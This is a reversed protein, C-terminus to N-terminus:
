LRSVIQLKLFEDTATKNVRKTLWEALGWEESGEFPAWPNDGHGMEEHDKRIEEFSTSGIGSAEGAVGDYAKPYRRATGLTDDDDVEEMHTRKLPPEESVYEAQRRQPPQYIYEEPLEAMDDIPQLHASPSASAPPFDNASNGTSALQQNFKKKCEPTRLIHQKVGKPTGMAKQCYGCRHQNKLM